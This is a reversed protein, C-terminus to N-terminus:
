TWYFTVLGTRRTGLDLSSTEQPGRMSIPLARVQPLPVMSVRHSSAWQVVSVVMGLRADRCALTHPPLSNRTVSTPDGPFLCLLWYRRTQLTRLGPLKQSEVHIDRPKSSYLSAMLSCLCSGALWPCVWRSPILTCVVFPLSLFSVAARDSPEEDPCPHCLPPYCGLFVQEGDVYIGPLWSCSRGGVAALLYFGIQWRGWGRRGTTFVSHELVQFPPFPSALSHGKGERQQM